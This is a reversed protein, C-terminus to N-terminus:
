ERAAQSDSGRQQRSVGQNSVGPELAQMAREAAKAMADAIQGSGTVPLAIEAALQISMTSLFTPEWLTPDTVQYTYVLTAPSITTNIVQALVGDVTAVGEEYPVRDDNAMNNQGNAAVTLFRPKICFGPRVYQYLFPFPAGGDTAILGSRATAFRWEQVGLLLDRVTNFLRNCSRAEVSNDGLTAISRAGLRALALNAVDVPQTM